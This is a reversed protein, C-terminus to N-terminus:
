KIHILEIKDQSNNMFVQIEKTLLNIKVNDAKIKTNINKYLINESILIFNEEFNFDLKNSTIINDLYKINVAGSFSTKYTASNLLATDSKIDIRNANKDVIFASVDSMSVEEVGGVYNLKSLKAKIEYKGSEAYDVKYLLNKIQNNKIENEDSNLPQNNNIVELSNIKNDESNNKKKAISKNELFYSNYFLFSIVFIICLLSVQFFIKM